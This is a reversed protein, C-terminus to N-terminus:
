ALRLRARLRRRTAAPLERALLWACRLRGDVCRWTLAIVPGLDTGWARVLEAPLPSTADVVFLNWRGDPLLLARALHPRRVADHVALAAAGIVCALAVAAWGGPVASFAAGAVAGACAVLVLAVEGRAPQLPLELM